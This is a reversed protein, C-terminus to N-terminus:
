LINLQTLYTNCNLKTAPLGSSAGLLHWGLNTARWLAQQTICDILLAADDATYGRSLEARQPVATTMPIIAVQIFTVYSRCHPTTALLRARRLKRTATHLLSVSSSFKHGVWATIKNNLKVKTRLCPNQWSKDKIEDSNYRTHTHTTIPKHNVVCFVLYVCTCM